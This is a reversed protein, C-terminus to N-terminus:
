GFRLCIDRVIRHTLSDGAGFFTLRQFPVQMQKTGSSQTSEIKQRQPEQFDKFFLCALDLSKLHCQPRDKIRMHEFIYFFQIQQLHKPFVQLSEGGSFFCTKKLNRRNPCNRKKSGHAEPAPEFLQPM